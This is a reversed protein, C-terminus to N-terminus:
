LWIRRGRARRVEATAGTYSPVDVLGAGTLIADQVVRLGARRTERLAKFEVSLGTYVRERLNVAADRGAQTDPFPQDVRLENGELFPSVRMIPRSRDHMERVLIGGDPIRLAGQEFLEARDGAKVGYPLLVGVLRGPTTRSEDARFEVPILLQNEDMM